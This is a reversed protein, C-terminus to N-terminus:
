HNLVYTVGAILINCKNQKYAKWKISMKAKEVAILISCKNQKRAKWTVSM